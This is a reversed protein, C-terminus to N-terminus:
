YGKKLKPKQFSGLKVICYFPRLSRNWKVVNIQFFLPISHAVRFNIVKVSDQVVTNFDSSINKAVLVERHIICHTFAILTDSTSRARAHLGATPGTMAAAGDTSVGVCDTWFLGM